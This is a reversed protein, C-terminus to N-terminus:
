RVVKATRPIFVQCNTGKGPSSEIDVRFGQAEALARVIRLGFGKAQLDDSSPVAWGAGNDLIALKVYESDLTAELTVSGGSRTYKVANAVLNRLLTTTMDLDCLVVTEPDAVVNLEVGGSQALARFEAAVAKLLDEAVVPAIQPKLTGLRVQSWELLSELQQGTLRASEHMLDVLPVLRADAATVEPETRVLAATEKGLRALGHVQGRLDHALVSIFFQLNQNANALEKTRSQVRSELTVSLNQLQEARRVAQAHRHNLQYALLWLFGLNALFNTYPALMVNPKYHLTFLPITDALTAFLAITYLAVLVTAQWDRHRLMLVTSRVLAFLLFLGIVPLGFAFHVFSSNQVTPAALQLLTPLLALVAGSRVLWRRDPRPHLFILNAVAVLYLWWYMGVKSLKEVLLTPALDWSFINNSYSLVFAVNVFFYVLHLSRDVSSLSRGLLYVLLSLIGVVLSAWALATLAQPGWFNRWFVWNLAEARPLLRVPGLAPTEGYQPLLQIEVTVNGQDPSKWADLSLSTTWHLRSSYTKGLNGHQSIVVGNVAVTMPVELPLFVLTPGELEALETQTLVTVGAGLTSQASLASAFWLLTVLFCNRM